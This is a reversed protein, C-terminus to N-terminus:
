TVIHFQLKLLFSVFRSRSSVLSAGLQVEYRFPRVWPGEQIASRLTAEAADLTDRTALDIDMSSRAVLYRCLLSTAGKLAWMESGASSETFLRDLLRQYTFLRLRDSVSLSPDAAAANKARDTLSRRFATARKIREIESPGPDGGHSSM